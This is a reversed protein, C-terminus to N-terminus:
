ENMEFLWEPDYDNWKPDWKLKGRFHSTKFGMETIKHEINSNYMVIKIYLFFLSHKFYCPSATIDNQVAM